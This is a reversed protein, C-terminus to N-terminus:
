VTSYRIVNVFTVMLIMCIIDKFLFGQEFLHSILREAVVRENLSDRHGSISLVNRYYTRKHLM